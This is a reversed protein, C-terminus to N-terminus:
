PAQAETKATDLHSLIAAAADQPGNAGRVIAQMKRVNAAITPDHAATMFAERLVEASTVRPDVTVALKAAAMAKATCFQEPIQPVIVMPVGFFLSEMISNMGGHSGFVSCEPLVDLQSVFPEVTANAPIPALVSKDFHNGISLLVDGELPCLADLCLRFFNPQNSFATGLTVYHLPRKRDRAPLLAAPRVRPGFSPGVFLYRSDFTEGKPHFARPMFVLNLLPSPVFMADDSFPALGWRATIEEVLGRFAVREPHDPAGDIPLIHKQPFHENTPYTPYLAMTPIGLAQGLIRASVCMFDHVIVDPKLERLTGELQQAVQIADAVMRRPYAAWSVSRPEDDREKFRYTTEYVHHTGGAAVVEDAVNAIPPSFFSVRAGRAVLEHIVPLTPYVHGHTVPPLMIVIHPM